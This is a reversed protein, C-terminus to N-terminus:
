RMIENEMRLGLRHALARDTRLRYFVFPEGAPHLSQSGYWFKSFRRNRRNEIVDKGYLPLSPLPPHRKQKTKEAGSFIFSM